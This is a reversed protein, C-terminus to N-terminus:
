LGHGSVFGIDKGALDQFSRVHNETRLRRRGPFIYFSWPCSKIRTTFSQSYTPSGRIAPKVASGESLAQSKGHLFDCVSDWIVAWSAAWEHNLGQPVDKRGPRSNEAAQEARTGTCRGETPRRCPPCPEVDPVLRDTSSRAIGHKAATFRSLSKSGSGRAPYLAARKGHQTIHHPVGVAIARDLRAM